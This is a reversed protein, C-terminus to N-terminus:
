LQSERDSPSQAISGVSHFRRGAGADLWYSIEGTM